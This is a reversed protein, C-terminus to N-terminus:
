TEEDAAEEQTSGTTETNTASVARIHTTVSVSGDNSTVYVKYYTDDEVAVTEVEVDPFRDRTSKNGEPDIEEIIDYKDDNFEEPIDETDSAGTIGEAMLTEVASSVALQSQMMQEAKANLRFSMVLGTCTPVVIIGLTVIAILTEILSYGGNHKKKM